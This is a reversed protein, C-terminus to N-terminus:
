WASVKPMASVGNALAGSSNQKWGWTSEGGAPLVMNWYLHRSAGNMFHKGDGCENETQALPLDLFSEHVRQVAGKGAWQFGVGKVYARAAPDGLVVHTWGNVDAREITRWVVSWPRAPEGRPARGAM